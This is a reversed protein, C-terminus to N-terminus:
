FGIHESLFVPQSLGMENLLQIQLDGLARVITEDLSNNWIRLTISEIVHLRSNAEPNMIEQKLNVV